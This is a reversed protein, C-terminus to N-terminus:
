KNKPASLKPIWNEKSKKFKDKPVCHNLASNEALSMDILWFDDQNQMIDIAWQGTLNTDPLLEKIHHVITEKNENYRKMLIPEHKKYIIYDHTDHPNGETAGKEFRTKMIDPDWYPNIGLIEDTDFDVFIRYETHLPLGKYICPNNEKDPIYERVVWENTTAAGYTCPRSLPSAMQVTQWTIFLLYEGLERVEKEGTVKANRFDYKSSFTGTKIFYNKNVDLDFAKMCFDDVIKLTSPTLEQYEMRTLQLIPLPVKIIKTEPIKFFHHKDVAQKIAPFWYGMTNKNMGLTEYIVPDLDMIELGQRFTHYMQRNKKPNEQYKKLMEFILPYNLTDFSAFILTGTLQPRLKEPIQKLTERSILKNQNSFDELMYDGNHIALLEKEINNMTTQLFEPDTIEPINTKNLQAAQKANRGFLHDEPENIISQYKKEFEQLVEPTTQLNDAIKNLNKKNYNDPQNFFDQLKPLKL